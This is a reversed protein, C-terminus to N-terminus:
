YRMPTTSKEQFGKERKRRGRVYICQLSYIYLRTTVTYSLTHISTSGSTSDVAGASQMINYRVSHFLNSSSAFAFSAANRLNSIFMKLFPPPCLNQHEVPIHMEMFACSIRTFSLQSPIAVLSLSYIVNQIM